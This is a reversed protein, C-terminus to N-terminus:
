WGGGCKKDHNNMVQVYAQDHCEQVDVQSYLPSLKRSDNPHQHGTVHEHYSGHKTDCSYVERWDGDSARRTWVIAFEVLKFEAELVVLRQVIRCRCELDIPYVDTRVGVTPAEYLERANADRAAQQRARKANSM